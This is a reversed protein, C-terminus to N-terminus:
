FEIMNMTTRATVDNTLCNAAEARTQEFPYLFNM